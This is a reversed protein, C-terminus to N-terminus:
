AAESRCADILLLAVAATLPQGTAREYYTFAPATNVEFCYWADDETRRLDIGALPLNLRRALAHCRMAVAPPLVAARFEIAEGQEHAIRYDDACCRIECAHLADGIVHVRFDVGPIHAQFQTPCNAVDDIQELQVADVRSVISRQGSVSKYIVQGHTAIFERADEPTTTALTPPIEFGHERIMEAQYPKSGNAALASPRNVVLASAIETWVFLQRELAMAQAHSQTGPLDGRQRLVERIDRPRVFIAGIDDLDVRQAGVRLRGSVDRTTDLDIHMRHAERQDLLVYPVDRRNLEGRVADLAEDQSLGWLVIQRRM